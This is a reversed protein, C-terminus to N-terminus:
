KKVICEYYLALKDDKADTDMLFAKAMEAWYDVNSVGFKEAVKGYDSWLMNMTAYFQVPDCEINRQKMVQSTQEYTWHEGISGDSNKLNSTWEKAANHNLQKKQEHHNYNEMHHKQDYHESRGMHEQLWYLMTLDQICQSTMCGHKELEYIENQIKEKTIM